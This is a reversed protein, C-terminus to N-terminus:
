LLLTLLHEGSHCRHRRKKIERGAEGPTKGARCNSRDMWAEGGARRGEAKQSFEFPKTNWGSGRKVLCESFLGTGRRPPCRNLLPKSEHGLRPWIKNVFLQVWCCCCCYNPLFTPQLQPGPDQQRSWSLKGSIISPTFGGGGVGQTFSSAPVVKDMYTTVGPPFSMGYNLMVCFKPALVKSQSNSLPLFLFATEMNWLVSMWNALLCCKSGFHQANRGFFCSKIQFHQAPTLM